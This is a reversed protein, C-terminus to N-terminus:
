YIESVTQREWVHRRARSGTHGVTGEESWEGHEGVCAAGHEEIDCILM